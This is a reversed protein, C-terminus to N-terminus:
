KKFNIPLVMKSRVPNDADDKAPTWNPMKAIADLAVKDFDADIGRLVKPSTVKGDAEVFFEVYVKGEATKGKPYKVTKSIYSSMAQTGGNYSAEVKPPKMEQQSNAQIHLFLLSLIVFFQKMYSVKTM